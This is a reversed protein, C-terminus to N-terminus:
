SMSCRSPTQEKARVRKKKIDFDFRLSQLEVTPFLFDARTHFAAKRAPEGDCSRSTRGASRPKRWLSKWPTKGPDRGTGRGPARRSGRRRTRRSRHSRHCRSSHRSRLSRLSRTSHCSRWRSSNSESSADGAASSRTHTSRLHCGSTETSWCCGSGRSSRCSSLGCSRSSSQSLWWGSLSRGETDQQKQGTQRGDSPEQEPRHRRTQVGEGILSVASLHGSIWGTRLEVFSGPGM